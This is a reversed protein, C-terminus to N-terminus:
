GVGCAGYGVEVFKWRRKRREGGGSGGRATAAGHWRLRAGDCNWAVMAKRQRVGRVNGSSNWRRSDGGGVKMEEHHHTMLSTVLALSDFSRLLLFCFPLLFPISSQYSCSCRDCLSIMTYADSNIASWRTLGGANARNRSQACRRRALQTASLPSM